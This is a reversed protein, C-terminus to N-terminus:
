VGIILFDLARVVDDRRGAVSTVVAGLASTPVGALEATSLVVSTGEIDFVPNLIAAPRLASPRVLPIVVRTALSDLLGSQVDLLYPVDRRTSPNPNEHVDWQAM